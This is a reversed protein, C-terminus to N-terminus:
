MSDVTILGIGSAEVLIKKIILSKSSDKLTTCCHEASAPELRAENVTKRRVIVFWDFSQNTGPLSLRPSICARNRVAM